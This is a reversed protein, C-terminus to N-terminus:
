RTFPQDPDTVDVQNAHHKLLLPLLRAKEGSRDASGWRVIRSRTLVLTISTPDLAEISRVQKRLSAPLAAAVAAVAKGTSRAAAGTSIVFKPLGAPVASVSRYQAGTRDVLLDRGSTTVYGVPQREAVTIVVTSPMSTSVQASAVVALMEVRRAVATTDVRILPTGDQIAAAARVQAATLLHVGRVDVTRVGFVSSFAVLWTALVTVLVAGAVIVFATRRRGPRKPDEDQPQHLFTTPATV